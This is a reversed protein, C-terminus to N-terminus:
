LLVTVEESTIKTVNLVEILSEDDVLPGQISTLKFLLNEELEDMKRKNATVDQLPDPNSPNTPHYVMYRLVRKYIYSFTVLHLQIAKQVNVHQSGSEKDYTLLMCEQKTVEILNTREKELEGKEKLIVIGLLQDELGKMTVTFDIISTRASIEPTYAPNALKTTIYIRFGKMVDLEKDGCKM